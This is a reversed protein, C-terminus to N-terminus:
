PLAPGALLPESVSPAPARSLMSTYRERLVPLTAGFVLVNLFGQLPNFIAHLLMLPYVPHNPAAWNQVRNALGWVMSLVFVPLYYTIRRQVASGLKAPAFGKRILVFAVCSFLMAAILPGYFIIFRLYNYRQNIWCWPGLDTIVDSAFVVVTTSAAASWCLAHYIPEYAQLEENSSRYLVHRYLSFAFCCSWGWAAMHGFQLALGQAVCLPTGAVPDFLYAISTILDAISLLFVMRMASFHSRLDSWRLNTVIIFLCGVVSLGASISSALRLQSLQEDSYPSGDSGQVAM